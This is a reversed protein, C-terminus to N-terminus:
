GSIHDDKKTNDKPIFKTVIAILWSFMASYYAIRIANEGIYPYFESYIIIGLVFINYIFCIWRIIQGFKYLRKMFCRRTFHIVQMLTNVLDRIGNLMNLIVLDM